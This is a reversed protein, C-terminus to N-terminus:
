IVPKTYMHVGCEGIARHLIQQISVDHDTRTELKVNTVLRALGDGHLRNHMEGIGTMINDSKGVMNRRCADVVPNLNHEFLVKEARHVEDRISTKSTGIAMVPIDAFSRDTRNTALGFVSYLTYNMPPRGVHMPLCVVRHYTTASALSSQHLTSAAM